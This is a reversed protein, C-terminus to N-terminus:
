PPLDSAWDKPVEFSRRYWAIGQYNHRVLHIPEGFGQAQWNGPVQIKDPFAVSPEFWKGAEGERQPDMRFEWEGDLSVQPRAPPEAAFLSTTLLMGVTLLKLTPLSM